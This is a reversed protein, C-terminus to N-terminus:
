LRNWGGRFESVREFLSGVKSLSHSYTCDVFDRFIMDHKIKMSMKQVRLSFVSFTLVNRAKGHKRPM